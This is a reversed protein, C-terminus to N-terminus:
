CVYMNVGLVFIYVLLYVVTFLNHCQSCLDHCIILFCKKCSIIYVLFDSFVPCKLYAVYLSRSLGSYFIKLHRRLLFTFACIGLPLHSCLNPPLFCYDLIFPALNLVIFYIYCLFLSICINFLGILMNLKSIMSLSLLSGFPKLLPFAM